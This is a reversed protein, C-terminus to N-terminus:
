KKWATQPLYWQNALQPPSAGPPLTLWTADALYDPTKPGAFNSGGTAVTMWMVRDGPLAANFDAFGKVDLCWKDAAIECLRASKIGPPAFTTDPALYRWCKSSVPVFGSIPPYTYVSGSATAYGFSLPDISPDYGALPFGIRSNSYELDTNRWDITIMQKNSHQCVDLPQEDALFRGATSGEGTGTLGPLCFYGPPPVVTTDTVLLASPSGESRAFVVGTGPPKHATLSVRALKISAALGRPYDVGPAVITITGTTGNGDDTFSVGPAVYVVSDFTFWNALPTACSSGTCAYHVQLTEGVQLKAAPPDPDGVGRNFHSNNAVEVTVTVTDGDVMAMSDCTPVYAPNLDTDDDCYHIDVDAAATCEDPMAHASRVNSALAGIIFALLWALRRLPTGQKEPPHDADAMHGSTARDPDNDDHTKM